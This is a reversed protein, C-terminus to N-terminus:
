AHLRPADEGEAVIAGEATALEDLRARVVDEGYRGSALRVYTMYHRAESAFLSRYFEALERDELNNALLDFRECSRAEILASILLRDILAEHFGTRCLRHLKGAYASPRQGRYEWGRESMLDVVQKFHAIEEEVIEPMTSVLEIFDPYRSLLGLATAAAKKECHAHDLLMEEVDAEFRAVFDPSTQTKLGLM